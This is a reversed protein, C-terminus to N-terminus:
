EEHRLLQLFAPEDLTAVGLERAKELKSGPSDGAVVFATKRSVSGVVKGGLRAIAEEAAERSMSTLTGTLVFTKGELTHSVAPTLPAVTASGMNVGAAQLRDILDRNHPEAFFERIAAAVVPGVDGVDQLAELSAAALREMTQFSTALAQAGREGVHRIGLAYVVRWLDVGKSGEIENLLSRASKEGFRREEQRLEWEPEGGAEGRSEARGEVESPVVRLRDFPRPSGSSASPDRPPTKRRVAAVFRLGTLTQLDLRYLDAVNTVIQDGTLKEILAPGLGEINMARRSAFHELSRRLRAPCSTNPCRWVAEGEPRVLRSECSPCVSPFVYPQPADAGEPRVSVIPKVIKPIVDGSREVLVMDGPRIDKRKIEEENHLTAFTITAGGLAVPELVGVPTVAGTRGVNVDIRILKTTAQQAPFKFATAWRPFKATAGLRLRMELEDVKIVVGDTEFPLTHRQDAWLRCHAVLEEVDACVRWHPEVPVSWRGLQELTEVHTRSLPPDEPTAPARVVQYFYAGLRRRAVLAPDLNRMTGAAANRPNAFPPEDAELRQENVRAFEALPLYVEGRVEFRGPQPDRLVLPVARITRVNATVVEGRIGDGRTVGRVLRGDEYTLAISLGDIKLEAVYSYSAEPGLARRLREDFARLEAEDYTNDLSLMPAVHEATEFGELARGGVRQTPSDPTVREPSARELAKLEDVLADFEADSIDPDNHIYYREEHYRILRRLEDIRDQPPSSPPFIRTM